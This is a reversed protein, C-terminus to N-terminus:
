PLRSHGLRKIGKDLGSVLYIQTFSYWTKFSLVIPKSDSFKPDWDVRQELDEYSYRDQALCKRGQVHHTTMQLILM